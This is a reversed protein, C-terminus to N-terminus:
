QLKGLQKWAGETAYRVADILHNDKDPYGTVPNAYKDKLYEMTSFERYANPCRKSDIVIKALGQLWKYSFEVSGPGKEAGITGYLGYDIRYSDVSKPEASDAVILDRAGVGKSKIINATAGNSSKYAVAEDFIYLTMSGRHFYCRAFAWPDPYYGWDVGTLVNDFTKILSDPIEEDVLNEFVVNGSGTAEGDYEHRYARENTQRLHEADDFFAQGLWEAPADKYHSHHITRGHVDLKAEVNVRHTASIPTNYSYLSIIDDGGRMASQRISRIAEDSQFQDYEELWIIGIYMGHPPKISKIKSTDDAGRFFIIQGTAKKRIQMPSTTAHYKDALGLEAIAWVTQAYVSSALTDKVQRMALGCINPNSEIEDILTLGCFSSKLSGRGGKLDFRTYKRSKVERHLDVFSKGVSLAPIGGFKKEDDASAAQELEPSEGTIEDIYKIADLSGFKESLAKQVLEVDLLDGITVGDPDIGLEELRLRRRENVKAQNSLLTLLREKKAKRERRAIGSAIGGKRGNERAEDQSRMDGPILNGNGGVGAAMVSKAQKKGKDGQGRNKTGKQGRAKDGLSDAPIDWYRKKWKKVTDLKQGHKKAIDSLSMGARYDEFALDRATM